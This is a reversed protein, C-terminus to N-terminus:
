ENLSRLENLVNTVTVASVRINAETSVGAIHPTLLISELGNFKAAAAATLPEQEFVDLAAGALQGRRLAQALATEDVIGGRATNILIGSPKMQALANADILNRTAKTRPVHLSLVDAQALLVEFSCNQAQQWAPDDHALFPDHALITMGLSRARDAVAGAIHGLGLLGMVRGSTEGGILAGRPWDGAIMARRSQYAGRLLMLSATIVYEAVPLTNAGTAPHVAINRAACADLDINDLGVGLRGVVKLHPAAALLEADVQTRNRVILGTAIHISDLLRPRNEVLGPNYDVTADSGIQDLAAEDIFESVVIHM